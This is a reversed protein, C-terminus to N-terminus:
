MLLGISSIVVCKGRSRKQEEVATAYFGPFKGANDEVSGVIAAISPCGQIAGPGPHTVDAGLIMTGQMRNQVIQTSHNIGGLKLNVKM